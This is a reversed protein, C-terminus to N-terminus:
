RVFRLPVRVDRADRSCYGGSSDMGHIEVGALFHEAESATAMLM